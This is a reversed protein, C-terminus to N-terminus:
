ESKLLHFNRLYFLDFYSFTTVEIVTGFGGSYNAPLGCSNINFSKIISRNIYTSNNTPMGDVWLESPWRQNLNYNSNFINVYDFYDNQDYIYNKSLASYYEPLGPAVYINHDKLENIVLIITTDNEPLIFVTESEGLSNYAKIYLSDSDFPIDVIGNKDTLIYYRNSATDSYYLVSCEKCNKEKWQVNILAKSQSLLSNCILALLFLVYLKM